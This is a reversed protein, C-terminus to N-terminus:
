VGRPQEGVARAGDDPAGAVLGEALGVDGGIRVAVTGSEGEGEAEGALVLVGLGPEVVVAEAVVVGAEGAVEGGVGETLDGVGGVEVVVGSLVGEVLDIRQPQILFSHM